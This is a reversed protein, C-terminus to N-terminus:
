DATPLSRGFVHERLFATWDTEPQCEKLKAELDACNWSRPEELLDVLMKDFAERGCRKEIQLWVLPGYSLLRRAGFLDSSDMLSIPLPIKGALEEAQQWSALLRDADDQNDGLQLLRWTAYEALSADLFLKATGLGQLRSGFREQCLLRALTVRRALGNMNVDVPAQFWGLEEDLVLFDPLVRDGIYPFSAVSWAESAGPLWGNLTEQLRVLERVSDHVLKAKSDLRLNWNLGSTQQKKYAGVLFFPWARGAAMPAFDTISAKLSDSFNHAQIPGGLSLLHPQHIVRLSWAPPQYGAKSDLLFSPVAMWLSDLASFTDKGIRTLGNTGDLSMPLRYLVRRGGLDEEVPMTEAGDPLYWSFEGSPVPEVGPVYTLDVEIQEAIEAPPVRVEIRFSGPFPLATGNPGLGRYIDVDPLPAPVWELPMQFSDLRSGADDAAAALGEWLLETLRDGQITLRQLFVVEDNGNTYSIKWGDGQHGGVMGQWPTITHKVEGLMPLWQNQRYREALAKSNAGLSGLIYHSVRFSARGDARKSTWIEMGDDSQVFDGFGDPLPLEFPQSTPQQAWALLSIALFGLV